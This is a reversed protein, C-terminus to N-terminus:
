RAQTQHPDRQRRHRHGGAAPGACHLPRGPDTNPSPALRRCASAPRPRGPLRGWQHAPRCSELSRRVLPSDGSGFKSLNQQVTEADALLGAAYVLSAVLFIVGGILLPRKPLRRWFLLILTGVPVVVFFALLYTQTMMTALVLALLTRRKPHQSRNLLVPWLLWAIASVFFPLLSQVWTARSYEIVWPNVAMLVAAVLAPGRGLLGAVARYALFVALTNLTIVLYYAGLPSRFFAVFPLYLYGTLAPNAFLVSTGQGVLPWEGHELTRLAQWVPYAHDVNHEIETLYSFRM